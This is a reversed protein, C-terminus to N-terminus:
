PVDILEDHVAQRLWESFSPAVERFVGSAELYYFVPPDPGDSLRFFLFQYGQHSCFVFADDPLQPGGDETLLAEASDRLRPLFATTLDSGKLFNGTDAGCHRLFRLYASPLQLRLSRQLALLDQESCGMLPAASHEQILSLTAELADAATKM